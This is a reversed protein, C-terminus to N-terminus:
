KQVSPEVNKWKWSIWIIGIMCVIEVAAFFYYHLYASGGGIAYIITFV